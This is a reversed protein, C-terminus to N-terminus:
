AVQVGGLLWKKPVSQFILADFSAIFDSGCRPCTFECLESNDRRASPSAYAVALAGCERIPCSSGSAVDNEHEYWHDQMTLKGNVAVAVKEAFM